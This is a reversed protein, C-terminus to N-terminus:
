VPSEAKSVLDWQGRRKRIFMNIPPSQSCFKRFMDTVQVLMRQSRRLSRPDQIGFLFWEGSNTLISIRFGDIIVQSIIARELSLDYPVSSLNRIQESAELQVQRDIRKPGSYLLIILGVIWGGLMTFALILVGLPAEENGVPRNLYFYGLLLGLLGFSVAEIIYAPRLVRSVTTKYSVGGLRHNTFFLGYGNGGKYEGYSLRGISQSAVWEILQEEM